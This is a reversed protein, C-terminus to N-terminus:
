PDFIMDQMNSIKGEFEYSYCIITIFYCRFLKTALNVVIDPVINFNVGKPVNPVMSRILTNSM